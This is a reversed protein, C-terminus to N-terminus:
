AHRSVLIHLRFAAKRSGPEVSGSGSPSPPLLQSQLNKFAGLFLARILGLRPQRRCTRQTFFQRGYSPTQLRDGFAMSSPGDPPWAM